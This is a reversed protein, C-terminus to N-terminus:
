FDSVTGHCPSRESGVTFRAVGRNRGQEMLSLYGTELPFITHYNEVQRSSCILISFVSSPLSLFYFFLSLFFSLLPFLSFAILFPSFYYFYLFFYDFLSLYKLDFIVTLSISSLVNSTDPIYSETWVHEKNQGCM